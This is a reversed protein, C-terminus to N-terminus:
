GLPVQLARRLAYISHKQALISVKATAIMNFGHFAGPYVHLETPVGAALMRLAYRIDEQVFLDLAGVAIYTSPLGSLDEARAAAAYISIGNGGPAEGLLSSWGFVNSKQTWVFEGAFDHTQAVCTRDDIMPYILHQHIIPVEARDRALLALAAALGGGASEGQVAIRMPDIGLATANKHLWKLAEYCDEIPGPHITEPALRYDVSAIICDADLARQLNGAVGMKATGMIYGGGHMHLVAPRARAPKKPRHIFIGIEHGAACVITREEVTADQLNPPPGAALMVTMQQRIASLSEASFELTPFMELGARLEPDIFHESRVFVKLRGSLPRLMLRFHRVYDFIDTSVPAMHRHM